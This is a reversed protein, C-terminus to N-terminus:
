NSHSQIYEDLTKQLEDRTTIEKGNLEIKFPTSKFRNLLSDAIVFSNVGIALLKDAIFLALNWDFWQEPQFSEMAKQMKTITPQGLVIGDSLTVSTNINRADKGFYKIMEPDTIKDGLGFLNEAVERTNDPFSIKIPIEM